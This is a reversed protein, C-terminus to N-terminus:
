LYIREFNWKIIATRLVQEASMGHADTPGLERGRCLDQHVLEGLTTEQDPIRSISDLEKTQPHDIM